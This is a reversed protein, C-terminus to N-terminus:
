EVIKGNKLFNSRVLEEFSGDNLMEVAKRRLRKASMFDLGHWGELSQLAPLRSDALTRNIIDALMDEETM